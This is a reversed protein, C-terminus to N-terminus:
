FKSDYTVVIKSMEKRTSKKSYNAKFLINICSKQGYKVKAVVISIAVM